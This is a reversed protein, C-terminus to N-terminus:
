ALPLESPSVLGIRAGEEFMEAVVRDALQNLAQDFTLDEVDVDLGYDECAKAVVMSLAEIPTKGVSEIHVRLTSFEAGWLRMRRPRIRLDFFEVEAWSPLDTLKEM